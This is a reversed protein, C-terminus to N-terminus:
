ICLFVRSLAALTGLASVTFLKYDVVNLVMLETHACMHMCIFYESKM